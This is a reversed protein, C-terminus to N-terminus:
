AMNLKELLPLLESLTTISYDAHEIPLEPLKNLHPPKVHVSVLGTKNAGAIDNRPSDGVFIARDPTSDLLGLMRWYIAPHPKMFGTDGSTIRADIREMLGFAEIEVDRMWMPQYANTILGIKYGQARLTDLVHHTDPFPAVGPMPYWAFAELLERINISDPDIAFDRLTTQAVGSMHVAEWTKEARATAWAKRVNRGFRQGFAEGDVQHGQEGLFRVVSALMPALYEPWSISQTNWNILTDDLDFIVTDIQASAQVLYNSTM